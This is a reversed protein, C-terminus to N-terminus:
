STRQPLHSKTPPQPWKTGPYPLYVYLRKLCPKDSVPQWSLSLLVLLALALVLKM